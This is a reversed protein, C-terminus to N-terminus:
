MGLKLFPTGWVVQPLVPGPKRNERFRQVPQTDRSFIGSPQGTIYSSRKEAELLLLRIHPHSKKTNQIGIVELRCAYGM